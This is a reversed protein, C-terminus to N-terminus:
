LEAGTPFRCHFLATRLWHLGRLLLNATTYNRQVAWGIAGIAIMWAGVITLTLPLLASRAQELIQDNAWGNNDIDCSADGKPDCLRTFGFEFLKDMNPVVRPAAGTVVPAQRTPHDAFWKKAAEAMAAHGIENPHLSNHIWNTPKLSDWLSGAKPNFGIFNMGVPNRQECLRSNANVLSDEMTDIYDFGARTAASRVVQNLEKVFTVVFRREHETLLVDACPGSETIPIPYGTVVVPVDNGVVAKIDAYSQDLKPEVSQLGDLFKTASRRATARASM